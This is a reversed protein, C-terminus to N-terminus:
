LMLSKREVLGFNASTNSMNQIVVKRKVKEIHYKGNGDSISTSKYFEKTM